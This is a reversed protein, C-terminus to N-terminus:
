KLVSSEGNTVNTWTLDDSENSSRSNEWRLSTEFQNWSAREALWFLALQVLWLALEKTEIQFGVKGILSRITNWEKIEKKWTWWKRSNLSYTSGPRATSNSHTAHGVFLATNTFLEQENNGLLIFTAQMVKNVAPPPKLAIEFRHQWSGILKIFHHADKPYDDRLKRTCSEPRIGM